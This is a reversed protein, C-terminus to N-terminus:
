YISLGQIRSEPPDGASQWEGTIFVKVPDKPIGTQNLLLQALLQDTAAEGLRAYNQQIGAYHSGLPAMEMSTLILEPNTEAERIWELIPPCSVILCEPSFANVWKLFAKKNEADSEFVADMKRIDPSIRAWFGGSIARQSRNEVRLDTVMGIRKKGQRHLHHLIEGMEAFHHFRVRNFEPRWLGSGAIVVSFNAWTWNLHRHPLQILPALLLGRIGRAGLMREVRAASVAPDQYHCELGYGNDRLRKRVADELKRLHAFAHVRAREADSWYLAVTEGLADVGRNRRIHGMLEAVRPNPQYGLQEAVQRIRSRTAEPISPHNRLALSVTAPSVGAAKAIERQNTSKKM